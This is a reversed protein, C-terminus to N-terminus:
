NFRIKCAERWIEFVGTTLYTFSQLCTCESPGIHVQTNLHQYVIYNIHLCCCFFEQLVNYLPSTYKGYLLIDTTSIVM